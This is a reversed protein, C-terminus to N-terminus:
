ARSKIVQVKKNFTQIYLLKMEALKETGVYNKIAGMLAYSWSHEVNPEVGKRISSKLGLAASGAESM